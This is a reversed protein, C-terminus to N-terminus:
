ENPGPRAEARRRRKWERQSQARACRADCFKVGSTRRQDHQARGTQRVFMRGCTENQCTKYEAGEAIHNFLELGLWNWLPINALFVSTPGDAALYMSLRPHFPTLLPELRSEIFAAAAETDQHTGGLGAALDSVLAFTGALDPNQVIKWSNVLDIMLRAVFRFEPLTDSIGWWDAPDPGFHAARAACAQEHVVSLAPADAGDSYSFLPRWDREHREVSVPHQYAAVSLPGYTNVWSQIAVADDLDLEVLSLYIEGFDLKKGLDHVLTPPRKARGTPQAWEAPVIAGSDAVVWPGEIHWVEDPFGYRTEPWPAIRFLSRSTDTM